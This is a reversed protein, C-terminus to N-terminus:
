SAAAKASIADAADRETAFLGLSRDDADFAEFGLKGRALLHGLCVRGSYVSQFAPRETSAERDKLKGAVFVARPKRAARDAAHRRAKRAAM